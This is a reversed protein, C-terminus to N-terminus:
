AALPRRNATEDAFKRLRGVAAPIDIAKKCRHTHSFCDCPEIPDIALTPTHVAGASFSYGSEYGGLVVTVPTGVAQAMVVAFGPSAFVMSALGFVGVLIEVDLEGAHYSADADVEHGVIWEVGPVTDAVSVVFFRDRVSALLRAYAAHDPNRSACGSWETREILPRFILIPKSTNWRALLGKARHTWEVPIPLTFDGIDLGSQRCMAALVSGYKRVGWPSYSIRVEECGAPPQQPDYRDRERLANKAQTRLGSGKSVVHLGAIDRYLCPWPTELWVERTKMWERMLARQHFNDGLGHMGRVLLPRM